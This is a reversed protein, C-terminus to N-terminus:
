RLEIFMILIMLASDYWCYWWRSRIMRWTVTLRLVILHRRHRTATVLAIKPFHALLFWAIAVNNSTVTGLHRHPSCMVIVGGLYRYHHEMQNSALDSQCWLWAAEVIEDSDAADNNNNTDNNSAMFKQYVDAATTPLLILGLMHYSWKNIVRARSTHSRIGALSLATVYQRWYQIGLRWTTNQTRTAMLALDAILKTPHLISSLATLRCFVNENCHYHHCPSRVLPPAAPPCWEYADCITCHLMWKDRNINARGWGRQCRQCRREKKRKESM